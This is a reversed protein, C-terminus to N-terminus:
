ASGQRELAATAAAPIQITWDRGALEEGTITQRSVERGGYTVVFTWTRGLDVVEDFSATARPGAEGMGLRGAGDVADVQLPLSAQNDVRVTRYTPEDGIGAQVLWAMGLATLLATVAVVAQVARDVGAGLQGVRITM